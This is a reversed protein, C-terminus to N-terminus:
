YTPVEYDTVSSTTDTTTGTFDTGEQFESLKNLLVGDKEFIFKIQTGRDKMYKISKRISFPNFGHGTNIDENYFTKMSGDEMTKVTSKVIHFMSFEKYKSKEGPTDLSKLYTTADKIATEIEKFNGSFIKSMNFASFSRKINFIENLSELLNVEGEYARRIGEKDRFMDTIKIDDVSEAWTSDGLANIFQYKATKSVPRLTDKIYFRLSYVKGNLEGISSKTKKAYLEITVNKFTLDDKTEEKIYETENDFTKLGLEKKKENDINIFPLLIASEVDIGFYKKYDAQFQVQKDNFAM